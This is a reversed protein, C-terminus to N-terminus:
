INFVGTGWETLRCSGVSIPQCDREASKQNLVSGFRSRAPIAAAGGATNM